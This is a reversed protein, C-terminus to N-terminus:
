RIEVDEGESFMLSHAKTASAYSSNWNGIGNNSTSKGTGGGHGGGSTGSGSGGGSTGSGSGGGSGSGSSSGGGTSSGNGSGKSWTAATEGNLYVCEMTNGNISIKNGMLNEAILKYTTPELNCMNYIEYYNPEVATNLHYSAVQVGNIYLYYTKLFDNEVKNSFEWVTGVYQNEGYQHSYEAANYTLTWKAGLLEAEEKSCSSLTALAAVCLMVAMMKYKKTMLTDRIRTPRLKQERSPSIFCFLSSLPAM